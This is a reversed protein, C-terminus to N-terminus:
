GILDPKQKSWKTWKSARKAPHVLQEFVGATPEVVASTPAILRLHRLLCGLPTNQLTKPCKQQTGHLKKKKKQPPPHNPPHM